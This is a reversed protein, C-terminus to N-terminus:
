STRLNRFYSPISPLRIRIPRPSPHKVIPGSGPGTDAPVLEDDCIHRRILESSFGLAYAVKHWTNFATVVTAV